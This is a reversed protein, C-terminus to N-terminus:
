LRRLAAKIARAPGAALRIKTTKAPRAIRVPISSPTKWAGSDTVNSCTVAAAEGPKAFEADTAILM